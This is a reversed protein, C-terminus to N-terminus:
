RNRRRVQRKVWVFTKDEDALKKGLDEVRMDLLKALQQSQAPTLEVDESDGLHQAAPVSSLGTDAWQPGTRPGTPPCSWPAAFRVVGQRQFDNSQFNTRYAARAGLGTFGLAIMAVVLQQAVGPEPQGVFPQLHSQVSRSM